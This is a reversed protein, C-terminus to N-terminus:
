AHGAEIADAWCALGELVLDPRFEHPPLWPRLADAGGGSVVLRAPQGLREALMTRSREILAIGGLVCGSEICDETSKAFWEVQGRAGDLQPARAFLADRMAEPTPAILGGLHEGGPALADITLASGVSVVVCPAHGGAHLALMALWRDVGLREVKRYAMRLGLAEARPAVRHVPHGAREFVDLVLRTLEPRAVTALWLSDPIATVEVWAALQEVFDVQAHPFVRVREVRTGDALAFKLRTNGLDILLKM